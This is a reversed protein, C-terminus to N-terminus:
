AKEKRFDKADPCTAFHSIYLPVGRHKAAEASALSLVEAVGDDLAINGRVTPDVDIPMQKGAATKVWVIRARCTRCRTM